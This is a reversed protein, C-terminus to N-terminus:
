DLELSIAINGRVARSYPCSEHARHLLSKAERTTVGPISARLTVALVAQNEGEDALRVRAIVTSGPIDIHSRDAASKLAGHFCAAFAGAFLHEPTIPEGEGSDAFNLVLSRDPTEVRGNRGQDSIM